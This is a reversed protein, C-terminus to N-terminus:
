GPGLLRDIPAYDDTMIVPGRKSLLGTVFGDALAGFTKLEPAHVTVDSVPSPSDSAILVFITREGPEPRRHETWIEVSPFVDALTAHIAALAHLRNEFDIVNMAFVGGPELRDRVLAFFDRTVLHAPVAIDTFADGVIVDYRTEPRTLLARRGDEHLVTVGTPDFWFDAIAVETVAPDIEAVTLPGIGRDAWARPVSFTGGGVFFASFPRDGMRMRPLADLMAAYEGFMIRPEDRASIGHALHDIVMLNVPSSPDAAIDM